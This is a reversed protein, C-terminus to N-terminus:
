PDINRSNGSHGRDDSGVASLLGDTQRLDATAAKLDGKYHPALANVEGRRAINRANKLGLQRTKILRIPYRSGVFPAVWHWDQLPGHSLDASQSRPNLSETFSASRSSFHITTRPV